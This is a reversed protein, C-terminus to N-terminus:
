EGLIQDIMTLLYARSVPMLPGFYGDPYGEMINLETALYTYTDVREVNKPVTGHMIYLQEYEGDKYMDQLTGQIEQIPPLALDLQEKEMKLRVLAEAAHIRIIDEDPLFGSRNLTYPEDTSYRIPPAYNPIYSAACEVYPYYWAEADLDTYAGTLDIPALDFALTIIKAFEARTVPKEPQFTGDPYGSIVGKDAWKQISAEAWHGETDSFAAAQVTFMSCFCLLLAIAMCLRKKM